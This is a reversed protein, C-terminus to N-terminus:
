GVKTFGLYEKGRPSRVFRVVEFVAVWLITVLLLLLAIGLLDTRPATVVLNLTLLSFGLALSIPVRVLLDSLLGQMRM